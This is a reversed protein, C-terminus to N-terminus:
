RSKRKPASKPRGAPRRKVRYQEVSSRLLLVMSGGPRICDIRGNAALRSVQSKSVGLRNAADELTCYDDLKM